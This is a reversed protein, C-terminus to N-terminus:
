PTLLQKQTSFSPFPCKPILRAPHVPSPVKQLGPPLQVAAKATRTSFFSLHHRHYPVFMCVTTFSYFASSSGNTSCLDSTSPQLNPVAEEQLNSSPGPLLDFTDLILTDAFSTGPSSERGPKYVAVKERTRM